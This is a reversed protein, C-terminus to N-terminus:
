RRVVAPRRYLLRDPLQGEALGRLLGDPRLGRRPQPEAEYRPCGNAVAGEIFDEKLTAMLAADKKGIAKRLYDTKGPDFGGLTHAISMFQEQYVMIGFTNKTAEYAGYNYVPVVEGRRYRIYDETVGVELTVPCHLANVAILDEICDPQVDM